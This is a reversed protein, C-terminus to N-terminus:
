PKKAKGGEKEIVKMVKEAEDVTKAAAYGLADKASANKKSWMAVVGPSYEPDVVSVGASALLEVFGQHADKLEIGAEKLKHESIYSPSWPLVTRYGGYAKRAASGIAVMGMMDPLINRCIFEPSKNLFISEYNVRVSALKNMDAQMLTTLKALDHAGSNVFVADYFWGGGMKYVDRGLAMMYSRDLLDLKEDFADPDGAKAAEGCLVKLSNAYTQLYTAEGGSNIINKFGAPLEAGRAATNTGAGDNAAAGWRRVLDSMMNSGNKEITSM